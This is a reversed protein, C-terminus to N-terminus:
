NFCGRFRKKVAVLITTPSFFCLFVFGLKYRALWNIFRVSKLPLENLLGFGSYLKPTFDNVVFFSEFGKVIKEKPLINIYVDELPIRSFLKIYWDRLSKTPLYHLFPLYYHPEIPNNKNPFAVYVLGNSKLVRHSEKVVLEWDKVHEVLHNLVILDFCNNKFPLKTASANVTEVGNSISFINKDKDIDIGFVKGDLYKTIEGLGNGVDLVKPNEKLAFWHKIANIRFAKNKAQLFNESLEKNLCGM